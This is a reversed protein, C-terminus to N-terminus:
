YETKFFMLSADYYTKFPLDRKIVPNLLNAKFNTFLNVVVSGIMNACYTTQKYSCLTAEADEDSFLWEDKYKKQSFMDDGTMCFVQFEEAALRADIFLCTAREKAPQEMVYKRWVSFFSRRAEMNDFCGIMINNGQTTSHFRSTVASVRHYNSYDVITRAIADVKSTGIQSLAYLQGSLNALEVTDDDYIIIRSPDMRSLLFAVFSGIGGAGGILITSAKVAEYWAASSFRSTAENVNSLLPNSAILTPDEVVPTEEVVETTEEVVEVVTEETIPVVTPAILQATAEEETYVEYDANMAPPEAEITGVRQSVNQTTGTMDLGFQAFIENPDVSVVRGTEELENM